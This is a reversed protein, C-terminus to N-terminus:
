KYFSTLSNARLVTVPAEDSFENDVLVRQSRQFSAIWRLTTGGIGYYQLKYPLKHHPVVDFAKSFDLIAADVQKGQSISQQLENLFSILQTECSRKLRFGCAKNPNIGTLLKHIGETTMTINPSSDYPSPGKSPPQSSDATFVSCYQKNLIDAKDNPDSFLTGNNRLPSVECSDKGLSKIFSWFRKSITQQDDPSNDPTDFNFIGDTYNRHATRSERQAEHLFKHFVKNDKKKHTTKFKTFAKDRKNFLKKCLTM